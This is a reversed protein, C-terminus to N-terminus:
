LESPLKRFRFQTQASQKTVKTEWSKSTFNPQEIVPLNSFVLGGETKGQGVIERQLPSLRTSGAEARLQAAEEDVGKLHDRVSAVSPLSIFQTPLCM